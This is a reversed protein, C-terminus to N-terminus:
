AVKKSEGASSATGFESVPYPLNYKDNDESIIHAAAKTAKELEIELSQIKGSLQQM